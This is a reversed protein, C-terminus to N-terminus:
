DDLRQKGRGLIEEALDSFDDPEDDMLQDFVDKSWMEIRDNFASLIVEKEIGAYELLRRSVLIRDASDMEVKQAGRYFYRVLERNKKNYVNLNNIDETTKLWVEEPYLMLCKEFGRNLVFTYTERKGFQSILGSPLRMRNKDDIKCEYEGLLQNMKNTGKSILHLDFNGSEVM